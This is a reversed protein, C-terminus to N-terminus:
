ILLFHRPGKGGTVLITGPRAPALTIQCRSKRLHSRSVHPFFSFSSHYRENAPREQYNQHTTLLNTKLTQFGQVTLASM